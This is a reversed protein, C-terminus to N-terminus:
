CDYDTDPLELVRVPDGRAESEGLAMFAKGRRAAFVAYEGEPLERTELRRSGEGAAVRAGAFPAALPDGIFVGQGTMAVSKWYAELLTEGRLYRKIVVGPDPFKATINCPEIVTGYSGSAGADLWRLASMQKDSTLRGGASTLHDGVAGEVFTNRDLGQVRARGTFYFLIDDVGAMDQEDVVRVDALGQWRRAIASFRHARVNRKADTTRVLYATGDPWSHQSSLGREILAKAEDISSAALSMAPRIGLDDFPRRTNSDFYTSRRTSRCGKACYSEDLGFAFASTVSMCSAKFPQTWALVYAQVTPPTAADVLRKVRNFAKRPMNAQVAFRVRIVNDEPIQRLRAYDRGVAVSYPDNENIVLAVHEPLLRQVPLDIQVDHSSPMSAMVLLATALHLVENFM